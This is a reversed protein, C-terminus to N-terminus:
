GFNNDGTPTSDESTPTPIPPGAEIDDEANGYVCTSYSQGIEVRYDVTRNPDPESVVQSESVRLVRLLDALAGGKTEGTYDHVVTVGRPQYNSIPATYASFGEWALRDVAVQDFGIGYGSMDLVEVSVSRRNLRNGTPPTLFDEILTGLQTPDPLVVSRGDDPTTFPIYHVGSTGSYRAINSMDLSVALPVLSLVDTLTMDTEVVDVAEPWLQTVQAFLGQERAQYWMARLVDMQRRGRDLDNTTKRSRVYWLAMYPSLKQRGIPMTYYEWNDEVQPDLDPDKLRWDSIACDVSVELGGLKEVIRMFDNFDVRAYHDLEIGFNYLFTEKMLGFGGGPYGSSVGLAYALNLRDMTNNPIYVFLDRPVHWMSVSQTKKNVSVVIIVDTHGVGGASTDSGLLLFNVIDPDSEVLPARPPIPVVPTNFPIAYTGEIVYTPTPQITPTYTLTPTFTLTPTPTVSPTFTASPLPTNTATPTFSPRPTNTPILTPLVRPTNTPIPTISPPLLTETPLDTATETPPVPTETPTETPATTPAETPTETSVVQAVETPEKTAAPIATPPETPVDTPTAIEAEAVATLRGALAPATLTIQKDHADRTDRAEAQDLIGNAAYIVYGIASLAVALLVISGLLGRFLRLGSRM